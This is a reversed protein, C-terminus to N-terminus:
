FEMTKILGDSDLLGVLKKNNLFICSMKASPCLELIKESFPNNHKQKTTKTLESGDIM